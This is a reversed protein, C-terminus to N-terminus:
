DPEAFGWGDPKFGRALAMKTTREEHLWIDQPTFPIPGISAAVQGPEDAEAIEYGFSSLAKEFAERRAEEGEIPAFFLDLMIDSHPKVGQKDRLQECTWVTEAQQEAFNWDAEDM